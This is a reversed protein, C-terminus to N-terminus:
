QTVSINITDSQWQELSPPDTQVDMRVSVYLRATGVEKADLAFVVMDSAGPLVETAGAMEIPERAILFPEWQGLLQYHLNGFNAQGNNSVTITIILPEDILLPEDSLTIEIEPDFATPADTSPIPTSAEPMPTDTPLPTATPPVPLIETAIAQTPTETPVPTAASGEAGLFKIAVVAIIVVIVLLAIFGGGIWWIWSPVRPKSVSPQAPPPPQQPSRMYDTTQGASPPSPPAATQPAPTAPLSPQTSPQPSPSPSPSPSPTPPQSAPTPTSPAPRTALPNGCRPCFRAGPKATAGCASCVTGASVSPTPQTAQAQMTQGCQKCFRADPRNEFDCKSCKM